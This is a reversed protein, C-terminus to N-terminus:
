KAGCLKFFERAPDSAGELPHEEAGDEFTMILPGSFTIMDQFRKDLPTQGELIFLDDMDLRTGTTAVPIEIDGASLLAEVKVGDVANIPEHEIVVDLAGGKGNCRFSLPAYGSDPTGYILVAGETEGPLVFWKVEDASAVSPALLLGAAFLANLKM